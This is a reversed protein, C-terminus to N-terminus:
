HVSASRRLVAIQRPYSSLNSRAGKSRRWSRSCTLTCPFREARPFADARGLRRFGAPWGHSFAVFPDEGWDKYYMTTSDGVTNTAM